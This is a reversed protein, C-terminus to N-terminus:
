RPRHAVREIVFEIPQQGLVPEVVKDLRLAPREIGLLHPPGTQGRTLIESGCAAVVRFKLSARANRSPGKPKVTM